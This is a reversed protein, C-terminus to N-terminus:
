NTMRIACIDQGQAAALHLRLASGYVLMIGQDNGPTHHGRIDKINRAPHLVGQGSNGSVFVIQNRSYLPSYYGMVEM